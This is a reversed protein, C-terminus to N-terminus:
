RAGAVAPTGTAIERLIDPQTPDDALTALASRAAPDIMGVMHEAADAQAFLTPGNWLQELWMALPKRINHAALVSGRPDIVVDKPRERLPYTFRHKTQDVPADVWESTGDAYRVLIPLMFAFAPNDRDITQTQELEVTLSKSADDFVLDVELRPMGPRRAWQEFFRELSQGSVDEMVRRFDDTEVLGSGKFRNIYERTGHFFTADGLRERLMHLVFAGKGYVSEAKMFTTDPDRYRNSVMPTATPATGRVSQRLARLSNVMQRQYARRQAEEGQAAHEAWLAEAYSAWGENLWLHEWSRCTILDGFWQHALEHAILGDYRGPNANAIDDTTTTASTNEMGGPFTRVLVTAYKDWPYPEDFLEEFFLIMPATVELAAKAKAEKGIPVYAVIPLRFTPDRPLSLNVRRDTRDLYILSYKGVVLSVLYAPHPKDQLWHWRTTKAAPDAKMEVLRGNSVTRFGTPATVILETTLRENPFDHCPFWLHNSEAQGQSYIVPHRDTESKAEARPALWTLGQGRQKSFDLDYAIEVEFEQGVAAPAALPVTLTGDKHTHRLPVAPTMGHKPTSKEPIRVSRVDIGPGANLVVESRPKGRAALRLTLVGTAQPKSLDAFALELRMHVHDFHAPPPFNGTVRGTAADIRPDAPTAATDQALAAPAWWSVVALCMASIRVSRAAQRHPRAADPPLRHPM